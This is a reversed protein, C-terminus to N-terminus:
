GTFLMAIYYKDGSNVVAIGAKTFEPKLINARHDPSNMWAEVTKEADNGGTALNEGAFRFEGRIVTFCGSGDPRVHSFNGETSIENARILASECLEADLTLASAGQEARQGNCLALIDSVFKEGDNKAGCGCLLLLSLCLAIGFIRKM